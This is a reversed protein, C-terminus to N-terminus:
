YNKKRKNQRLIWSFILFFVGTNKVCKVILKL